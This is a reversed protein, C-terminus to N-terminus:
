ANMIYQSANHSEYIRVLETYKADNAPITTYIGFVDATSNLNNEAMWDANTTM